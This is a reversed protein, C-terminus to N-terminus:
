EGRAKRREVISNILELRDPDLSYESISNKDRKRGIQTHELGVLKLFKNLQITAKNEIDRHIDM